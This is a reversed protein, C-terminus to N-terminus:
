RMIEFLLNCAFKIGLAFAAEEAAAASDNALDMLTEFEERYEEPIKNELEECFKYLDTRSELYSGPESAIRDDLRLDGHYLAKIFDM